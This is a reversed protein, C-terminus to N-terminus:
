PHSRIRSYAPICRNESVSEKARLLCAHQPLHRGTAQNPLCYHSVSLVIFGIQITSSSLDMRQTSSFASARSSNAVRLKELARSAISAKCCRSFAAPEPTPCECALRSRSRLQQLFHLRAMRAQRDNDMVANESRSEATAAKLPPANRIDASATRRRCPPRVSGGHAQRFGARSCITSCDVM